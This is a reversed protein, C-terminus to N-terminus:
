SQKQNEDLFVGYLKEVLKFNIPSERLAAVFMDYLKDLLIQRKETRDLQGKNDDGALRSLGGSPFKIIRASTQPKQLTSNANVVTKPRLSILNTTEPLRKGVAVRSRSARQAKLGIEEITSRWESYASAFPSALAISSARRAEELRGVESLEIALSNMYDYYAYPQRLSAMRVMPFMKELEKVAGRHDGKMGRIVATMRIAYYFTIPDFNHERALLLMAERYLSMAGVHDSAKFSNGALALIARARYRTPGADAVEAFMLGAGATDGFTGQNLSLAKYYM